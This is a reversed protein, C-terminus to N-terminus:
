RHLESEPLDADGRRQSRADRNRPVVLIHRARAYALIERVDDQTYFQAPHKPDTYDGIAGVKTLEPFRKIELRWGPSDTLHWHFRNLKLSAMGDLIKFVAAKGMFHRSEDLMLGRWGFRPADCIEVCPLRRPDAASVLQRLTQVGYFLGAADSGALQIHDPAIRLVYGEPPLDDSAAAKELSIAGVVPTLGAIGALLVPLPLGTSSRWTESLFRAAAEGGPANPAYVLVTTEALSFTGPKENALAPEPCLAPLAASASFAGTCLVSFLMLVYAQKM